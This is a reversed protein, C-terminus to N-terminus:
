ATLYGAWIGCAVEYKVLGGRARRHGTGAIPAISFLKVKWNHYNSVEDVRSYTYSANVNNPM